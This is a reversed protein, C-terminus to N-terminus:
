LCGYNKLKEELHKAILDLLNENVEKYKAMFIKLNDVNNANIPRNYIVMNVYEKVRTYDNYATREHETILNYLTQYFEPTVDKTKFEGNNNEVVCYKQTEDSLTVLIGEYKWSDKSIKEDFNKHLYSYKKLNPYTKRLYSAVDVQLVHELEETEENFQLISFYPSNTSTRYEDNISQIVSDLENMSSIHRKTKLNLADLQKNLKTVLERDDNQISNISTPRIIFDNGVFKIIDTVYGTNNTEQWGTAGSVAENMMIGYKFKPYKEIANKFDSNEVNFGKLILNLCHEGSIVHYSTEGNTEGLIISTIKGKLESMKDIFENINTIEFDNKANFKEDFERITIFHGKGNLYEKINKKIIDSDIEYAIRLIHGATHSHITTIKRKYTGNPGFIDDYQCFRNVKFLQVHPVNRMINGKDDEKLYVNYDQDSFPDANVLIFANGTNLAIPTMNEHWSQKTGINVVVPSISMHRPSPIGQMPEGEKIHIGFDDATSYKIEFEGNFYGNEVNPVYLLPVKLEGSIEVELIHNKIEFIYEKKERMFNQLRLNESKYKDGKLHHNYLFWARLRLLENLQNSRNIIKFKSRLIDTYEKLNSYKGSYSDTDFWDMFERGTCVESDPIAVNVDSKPSKQKEQKEAHSDETVIVNQSPINENKSDIESSQQTSPKSEEVPNQPEQLSKQQDETQSSPQSTNTPKPAGISSSQIPEKYQYKHIPIEDITEPLRDLKWKKFDRIHEEKIMTVGQASEDFRSTIEAPIGKNVIVSGQKSRQSLTYFNKLLRYAGTKNASFNVDIVVFDFERGQTKTSDVVDVNDKKFSEYKAVNDTIIAVKKGTKRFINIYHTVDKEEILKDGYLISNDEYYKLSIPSKSLQQATETNLQVESSTPNQTYFDNIIDLTASILNTNDYKGVNSPRLPATLRPAKLAFMDEIGCPVSRSTDNSDSITAIATNQISDGLAIIRIDHKKAWRSILEIELRNYLGIEDIVLTDVGGILERGKDLKIQNDLTISVLTDGAKIEKVHKELSDNDDNLIKKILEDKNTHLDTPIAEQLNKVQEEVPANIAVKKDLMAILLKGVGQSKGVGASGLVLMFNDMTTKTQMYVPDDKGVLSKIRNIAYNFLETNNVFSYGMRVAYEQAFIPAKEFEDSSIVEAFRKNFNNSPTAFISILYMFQDYDSIITQPDKNLKTSVGNILQEKTFVTILKDVINNITLHKNVADEYIATEIISLIENVEKLNEEEVKNPITINFNKIINDVDIGLTKLATKVNSKLITPENPNPIGVLLELFKSKMNVEIDKHERLKQSNNIEAIYILTNVQTAIINLETTLNYLVTDDVQVFGEKKLATRYPNLRENYGNKVGAETVSYALQIIRSLQKLKDLTTVDQIIFEEMKPSNILSRQTEQLLKTIENDIGLSKAVQDILDYAPSEKINNKFSIITNFYDGFSKGGITPLIDNIFKTFEEDVTIGEIADEPNILKNYAKILTQFHNDVDNTGASNLELLFSNFRAWFSDLMSDDFQYGLETIMEILKDRIDNRKDEKDLQKAYNRLISVFDGDYKNLYLGTNAIHELYKLYSSEYDSWDQGNPNPRQLLQKGKDNLSVWFKFKDIGKSKLDSNLKLNEKELADIEESSEQDEPLEKKLKEIQENNKIIQEQIKRIEEDQDQLFIQDAKLKSVIEKLSENSDIQLKSFLKYAKIVESKEAHAYEDYESKMKIKEEDSLRDFNKGHQWEVWKHLGFKNNVLNVLTPQLAFYMLGMYYDNYQGSLIANRQARLKELKDKLEIYKANKQLAKIHSDVDSPTKSDTVNPTLMSEMESKTKVIDTALDNFHQFVESAIGSTFVLADYEGRKNAILINKYGEKESENLNPIESIIKELKEDSLELNEEKIMAEVYDVYASLRNYIIENQSENEKAAEWQIIKKDGDDIEKGEIGSLNKSYIGKDRVSKLEKRFDGLKNNRALYVIEQFHNNQQVAENIEQNRTEWKNHLGFVAGGITGGVFSTFYRSAMDELTIGFDYETNSDILGLANLGSFVGKITDTSVEEMTEEIGEKFATSLISEPNMSKVRKTISNQLEMFWKAAGQKTSIAQDVSSFGMIKAADDYSGKAIQKVSQRSLASGGFLVDDYNFYNNKMLGFFALSTALTGLGAARDSAGAEKFAEYAYQGSTGSMYAYSLGRGWKIANATLGKTGSLKNLFEPIRSIVRQQYLQMSSSAIIDGLNEASFFGSSRAYDSQSSNFRSFYGQIDNVTNMSSMNSTDGYAIGAVSKYLLPFVEGLELAATIGGYVYNVGPIFMPAVTVLTKMVTGGVSKDLGDSDFFDYKNWSSGDVTLTDTYHLLDKGEINRGSLTEYYPDGYENFKLDGKKHSFIRGNIEHTGDEDWQALVLTPMTWGGFFGGHENPTWDEFQQTEWNFVKSTQAVERISMTPDSIKNIGVLGVSQRQPNAVQYISSTLDKRKAGVPALVDLPDYEFTNVMNGEINLEEAMNYLYLADEYFSNFKANDFNGHQDTFAEQVSPSNKYYDRSQLASNDTTIGYDALDQITKDPSYFLTALWDNKKQIM